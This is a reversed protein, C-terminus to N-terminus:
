EPSTPFPCNTGPISNGSGERGMGTLAEMGMKEGNGLNGWRRWGEDRCGLDEGFEGLDEGLGPQFLGMLEWEWNRRGLEWLLMGECPNRSHSGRQFEPLEVRLEQCPNISGARPDFGNRDCHDMGEIGVELRSNEVASAPPFFGAGNGPRSHNIPPM